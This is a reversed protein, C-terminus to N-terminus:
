FTLNNSYQGYEYIYQGLSVVKYDTKTSFAPPSKSNLSEMETEAEEKSILLKEDKTTENSNEIGSEKYDPFLTQDFNELSSIQEKTILNSM